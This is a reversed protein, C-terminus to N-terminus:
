FTYGASLSVKNSFIVESYEDSLFYGSANLGLTWGSGPFKYYAGATLGFATENDSTKYNVPGEAGTDQDWTVEYSGSRSGIMPGIFYALRGGNDHESIGGVVLSVTYFSLTERREGTFTEGSFTESLDKSSALGFTANANVGLSLGGWVKKLYLADVGLGFHNKDRYNEDQIYALNGGIFAFSDSPSEEAQAHSLSAAALLVSM